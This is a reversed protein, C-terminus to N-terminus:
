EPMPPPQELLRQLVPLNPELFRLAKVEEPLLWRHELATARAEQGPPRAGVFFTM